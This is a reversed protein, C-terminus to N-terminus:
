GSWNLVIIGGASMVLTLDGTKVSVVAKVGDDGDDAVADTPGL